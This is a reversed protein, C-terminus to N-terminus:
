LKGERLNAMLGLRDRGGLDEEGDAHREVAHNGGVAHVELVAVCRRVLVPGALPRRKLVPGEGLLEELLVELEAVLALGTRVVVPRALEELAGAHRDQALPHEVAALLEPGLLRREVGRDEHDGMLLSVRPLTRAAGREVEDVVADVAGPGPCARATAPSRSMRIPPPASRM